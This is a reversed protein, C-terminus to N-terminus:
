GQKRLGVAAQSRGGTGEVLDGALPYGSLYRNVDERESSALLRDACRIFGPLEAVTLLHAM